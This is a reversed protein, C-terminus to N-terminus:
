VDEGEQIITKYYTYAPEPKTPSTDQRGYQERWEPIPGYYSSSNKTFELQDWGKMDGDWGVFTLENRFVFEVGLTADRIEDPVLDLFLDYKHNTLTGRLKRDYKAVIQRVREPTLGFENGVQQLTLGAKRRRWVAWSRKASSHGFEEWRQQRREEQERQAQTKEKREKEAREEAAARREHIHEWTVKSQWWLPDDDEDDAM